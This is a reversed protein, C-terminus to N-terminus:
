SLCGSNVSKRYKQLDRKFIRKLFALLLQFPDQLRSPRRGTEGQRATQSGVTPRSTKFRQMAVPRLVNRVLLVSLGFPLIRRLRLSLM